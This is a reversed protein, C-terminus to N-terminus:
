YKEDTIDEVLTAFREQQKELTYNTANLLAERQLSRIKETKTALQKLVETLPTESSYTVTHSAIMEDLVFEEPLILPRGHRLSDFIIGTAKSEGRYENPIGLPREEVLQLPNLFVDCSRLLNHFKEMPIWEIDHANISVTEEDNVTINYGRSSLDSARKIIQRGEEGRPTGLLLIEIDTNYEPFLEECAELVRDYDRIKNTIRGPVAVRVPESESV